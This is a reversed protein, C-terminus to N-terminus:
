CSRPRRRRRSPCSRCARRASRARPSRRSSRARRRLGDRRRGRRGRRSRCSSGRRRSPARGARCGPGRRRCRSSRARGSRPGRRSSGPRRRPPRRARRRSLHGVLLHVRELRGGAGAGARAAALEGGVRHREHDVEEADARAAEGADRRRVRRLGVGRARRALEHHREDAVVDPRRLDQRAVRELVRDGRDGAGAARRVANEVQERDRALDPM